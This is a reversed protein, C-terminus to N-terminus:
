DFWNHIFFLHTFFQWAFDKLTSYPFDFFIFIVLMSLLYSPLIKFIRRNAYRKVDRTRDFSLFLCFGSIFFFLTVGLSGTTALFNIDFKFGLIEKSFDFWTIEWYHLMMVLLIALGRLGDLFDLRRASSTETM